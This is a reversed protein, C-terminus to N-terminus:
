IKHSLSLVGVSNPRPKSMTEVCINEGVSFVLKSTIESLFVPYWKPM